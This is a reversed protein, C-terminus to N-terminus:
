RTVNQLNDDVTAPTAAKVVRIQRNSALTAKRIAEHDQKLKTLKRYATITKFRLFKEAEIDPNDHLLGDTRARNASVCESHAIVKKGVIIPDNIKKHQKKFRYVVDGCIQCPLTVWSSKKERGMAFSIKDTRAADTKGSFKNGLTGNPLLSRLQGKGEL